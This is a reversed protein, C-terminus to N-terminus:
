ASRSRLEQDLDPHKKLYDLRTARAVRKLHDDFCLAEFELLLPVIQWEGQVAQVWWSAWRRLYTRIRHTSFGSTIMSRVQERANRCTRPHAHRQKVPQNCDTSTLNSEGRNPLAKGRCSSHAKNETTNGQPQTGPDSPNKEILQAAKEARSPAPASSTFTYDIGLFHFGDQVLGMRTFSSEITSQRAKRWAAWSSPPSHPSIIYQFTPKLIQLLIHQLIRDPLYLSDVVENGFQWRKLPLPSYSGDQLAQIGQELWQNLKRAFYHIEHNHHATRKRQYIKKFLSYGKDFLPQYLWRQPM